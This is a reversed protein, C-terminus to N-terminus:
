RRGGLYTILRGVFKDGILGLGSNCRACILGRVCRRCGTSGPCCRHDHDVELEGIRLCIACRGGQLTLMAARESATLGHRKRQVPTRPDSPGLARQRPRPARGPLITTM